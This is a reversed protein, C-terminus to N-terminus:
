DVDAVVILHCPHCAMKADDMMIPNQKWKAAVIASAEDRQQGVEDAFGLCESGDRDRSLLRRRQALGDNLADALAHSPLRRHLGPFDMALAVRVRADVGPRLDNATRCRRHALGDVSRLLQPCPHSFMFGLAFAYGGLPQGFTRRCRGLLRPFDCLAVVTRTKGAGTAMVVLFRRVNKTLDDAVDRIAAHQYDRDIIATNIKEGAPPKRTARRGILLELEDRKYFGQVLRPPYSADDWMWTEYANTAGGREVGGAAGVPDLFGAAEGAQCRGGWM